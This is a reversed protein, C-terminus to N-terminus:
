RNSGERMTYKLFRCELPGNYVFHRRTSKLKMDAILDKNGSLIWADWGAFRHKLTYGLDRYVDRLNDEEGLRAGYPPNAVVMGAAVPPAVTAVSESSLQIYDDVGARRANEKAIKIVKRDIDYGYFEFDLTEKEQDMVESVVKEWVQKDYNLLRMFGFERRLSGPAINLAMLAAEILFTGSGCFLDVIPSKRDWGSLFLLGAALNEKLPAEGAQLRYGRQFLGIGTTDIGVHFNNKVAKIYIRLDPDDNDVSPRKGFKDRFQDVIADKVKMAVFRQDKIASDKLSVEVKLTQECTIYKTFDHKLINHYLEDGEYATFDQIPKLVRSALRSQLNFRYCGEWNTDFFVGSANREKVKYGLEVLEEQLAEVLGTATAAFFIPM